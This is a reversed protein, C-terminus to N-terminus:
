YTCYSNFECIVEFTLKCMSFCMPSEGLIMADTPHLHTHYFLIWSAYSIIYWELIFLFCWVMCKWDLVHMTRIFTFVDYIDCVCCEDCLNRLDVLWQYLYLDHRLLYMSLAWLRLEWVIYFRLEWLIYYHLCWKLLSYSCYMDKPVFSLSMFSLGSAKIVLEGGKDDMVM